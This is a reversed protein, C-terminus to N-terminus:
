KGFVQIEIYHNSSDASNGNSYFRVYRGKTGKLDFSKGYYEEIYNKDTGKGLGSSNDDDNNFVTTVGEVFDKDNSVQIVIDFYVRPQSHYHWVHAAYLTYAEELDIQVWQLGKKLQVYENGDADDDTIMDLDGANPDDDSSSVAKEKSLKKCGEPVMLLKPSETEPRAAELNGVAKPIETGKVLKEPYQIVLEVKKEEAILAMLLVLIFCGILNNRKM